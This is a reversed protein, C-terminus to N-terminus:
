ELCYDPADSHCADPGGPCFQRCVHVSNCSLDEQPGCLNYTATGDSLEYCQTYHPCDDDGNPCDEWCVTPGYPNNPNESICFGSVCDRYDVCDDCSIQGGTRISCSGTRPICVPDPLDDTNVCISEEPCENNTGCPESCFSNQTYTEYFCNGGEPCQDDVFCPACYGSGHCAGYDEFCHYVAGDPASGCSDADSCQVCDSVWIRDAECWFAEQCTADTQCTSLPREPDCVNSCYRSDGAAPSDSVCRHDAPCQADFACSECYDRIVCRKQAEIDGAGQTLRCTMWPPCGLDNQCFGTCIAEPDGSHDWTRSLCDYGVACDNLACPYGFTGEGTEWTHEVCRTGEGVDVCSLPDPCDSPQGCTRNCTGEYCAGETCESDDTCSAGWPLSLQCAGSVCAMGDRCEESSSCGALCYRGEAFDSCVFGDPCSASSCDRSCMGNPLDLLCLDACLTDPSCPSGLADGSESDSSCGSLVGLGLVLALIATLEYRM